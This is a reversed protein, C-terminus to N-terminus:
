VGSSVIASVGLTRRAREADEASQFRGAHLLYLVRGERAGIEIRPEGLGATRVAARVEALRQEARGRTSYAGLQLHYMGTGGTSAAGVGAGATRDRMRRADDPRGARDYAEASVRAAERADHGTLQVSVAELERAATLPDGTRREILALGARARPALGSTARAIPELWLRARADDRTAEASLGAVLAAESVAGPSGAAAQASAYALDYRGAEYHERYGARAGGGACASSLLPLVLAYALGRAVSSRRSPAVTKPDVM